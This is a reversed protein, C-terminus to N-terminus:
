VSLLPTVYVANIISPIGIWRMVASLMTSLSSSSSLTRLSYKLLRAIAPYSPPSCSCPLAIRGSASPIGASPYLLLVSRPLCFGGLVLMSCAKIFSFQCYNQIVYTILSIIFIAIIYFFINCITRTTAM